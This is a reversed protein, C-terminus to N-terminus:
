WTSQRRAPPRTLPCDGCLRGRGPPAARYILCCSRRRFRQAPNPAPTPALAPIVRGIITAATHRASDVNGRIILPSLPSHAFAVSLDDIPTAPFGDVLPEDPLSLPSAGGLEPQWWTTRPDLSPFAHTDSLAAIGLAPSLLRAVLGLHAVSAAVRLEIEATPRRNAAALKSRVLHVHTRLAAPDDLFQAVPRWPAPPAAAGGAPHTDVAFFARRSSRRCSV